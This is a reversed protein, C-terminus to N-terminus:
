CNRFMTQNQNVQSEKLRSFVVKHAETIAVPIKRFTKEESYCAADATECHLGNAPMYKVNRYMRKREETGEGEAIDGVWLHDGDQIGGTNRDRDFCQM